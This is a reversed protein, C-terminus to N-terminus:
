ACHRETAEDADEAEMGRKANDAAQIQDWPTLNLWPGKVRREQGMWEGYVCWGSGDGKDAVRLM